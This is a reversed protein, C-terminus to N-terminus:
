NEANKLEGALEIYPRDAWFRIHNDTMIIETVTQSYQRIASINDTNVTIYDGKTDRFSIFM